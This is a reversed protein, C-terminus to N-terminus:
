ATREQKVYPRLLSAIRSASVEDVEPGLGQEVASTRADDGLCDACLTSPGAGPSLCRSCNM